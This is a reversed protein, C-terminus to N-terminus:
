FEDDSIETASYHDFSPHLFKVEREADLATEGVAVEFNCEEADPNEGEFWMKVLWSKM